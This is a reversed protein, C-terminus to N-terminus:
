DAELDNIKLSVRKNKMKGLTLKLHNAVEKKLFPPILNKFDIGFLRHIVVIDDRSFPRVGNILESMYNPRHGLLKALEKQSLGEEKLKSKILEKRKQIFINEAHIIREADDSEKIQEETIRSEDEWHKSEYKEILGLLHQRIPELSSDEKVMWRLKGHILTAQEFELENNLEDVKLINDIELRDMKSLKETIVCGPKM